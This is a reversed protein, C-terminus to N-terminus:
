QGITQLHRRLADIEFYDKNTGAVAEFPLSDTIEQPSLKGDHNTDAADFFQRSVKTQEFTVGAIPNTPIRRYIIAV